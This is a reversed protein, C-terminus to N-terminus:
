SPVMRIALQAAWCIVKMLDSEDVMLCDKLRDLYAAMKPAKEVVVEVVRAAATHQEWGAVRAVATHPEWGAVRLVDMM